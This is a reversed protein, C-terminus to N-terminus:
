AILEQDEYHTRKEICDFITNVLADIACPKTLCADLEKPPTRRDEPRYISMGVITTIACNKEKRVNRLFKELFSTGAVEMNLLFLDQNKERLKVLADMPSKAVYVDFGNASMIDKYLEAEVFNPEILVASKRFLNAQM